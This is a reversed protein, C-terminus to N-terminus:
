YKFVNMWTAGKGGDAADAVLLLVDHLGDEVVVDPSM